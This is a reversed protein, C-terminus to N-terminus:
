GIDGTGSTDAAPVAVDGDGTVNILATPWM